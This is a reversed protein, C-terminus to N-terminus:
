TTEIGYSSYWMATVDAEAIVGCGNLQIRMRMDIQMLELLEFATWITFM